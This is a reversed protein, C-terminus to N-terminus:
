GLEKWWSNGPQSDNRKIVTSLGSSVGKRGGGPYEKTHTKTATKKKTMYGSTSQDEEPVDDDLTESAQDDYDSAPRKRKGGAAASLGSRSSPMDKEWVKRHLRYIAM